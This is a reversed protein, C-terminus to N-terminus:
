RSMVLDISRRIYFFFFCSNQFNILLYVYSNNRMTKVVAARCLYISCRCQMRDKCIYCVQQVYMLPVYADAPFCVDATPYLLLTPVCRGWIYHTVQQGYSNAAAAAEATNTEYQAEPTIIYMTFANGSSFFPNYHSLTESATRRYVTLRMGVFYLQNSRSPIWQKCYLRFRQVYVSM